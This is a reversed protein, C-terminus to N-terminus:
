RMINNKKALDQYTTGYRRAISALTDGRKVTYYKNSATKLVQGVYLQNPSDIGNLEILESISMDYRKAISYLTDGKQVKVTEPTGFLKRYYSSFLEVGGNSSACGSLILCLACICFCKRLM